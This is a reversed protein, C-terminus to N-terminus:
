PDKEDYRSESPDFCVMLIATENEVGPRLGLEVILGIDM